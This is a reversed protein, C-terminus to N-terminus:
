KASTSCIANEGAWMTGPISGDGSLISCTLTFILSNDGSRPYKIHPINNRGRDNTILKKNSHIYTEM